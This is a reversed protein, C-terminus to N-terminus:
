YPFVHVLIEALYKSITQQDFLDHIHVIKPYIKWQDVAQKLNKTRDFVHVNAPVFNVMVPLIGVIGLHNNPM